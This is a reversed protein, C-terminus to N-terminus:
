AKGNSREEQTAISRLEELASRAEEITRIFRHSGGVRSIREGELVQRADVRGGHERKLEWSFFLGSCCGVIDPTGVRRVGTTVIHWVDSQEILWEHIRRRLGAERM